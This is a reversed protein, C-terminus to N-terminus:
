RLRVTETTPSPAESVTRRAAPVDFGSHAGGALLPITLDGCITREGTTFVSAGARNRGTLCVRVLLSRAHEPARGAAARV